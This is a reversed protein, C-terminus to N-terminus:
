KLTEAIVLLVDQHLLVHMTAFGAAPVWLSRTREYGVTTLAGVTTLLLGGSVASTPYLATSAVAVLLTTVVVVGVVAAVDARDPIDVRTRLVALGEVVAFAAVLGLLISGVGSLVPEEWVHLQLLTESGIRVGFLTTVAAVAETPGAVARLTEQIAGHYVIALGIGSLVAPITIGVLLHELTLQPTYGFGLVPDFTPTERVTVTVIYTLVALASAVVVAWGTPVTEIDTLGVRLDIDRAHIYVGGVLAAVGLGAVLPRLLDVPWVPLEAVGHLWYAVGLALLGVSGGVTVIGEVHLREASSRRRGVAYYVIGLVALVIAAYLVAGVVQPTLLGTDGTGLVRESETPLGDAVTTIVVNVLRQGVLTAVLLLLVLGYERRASREGVSASQQLSQIVM